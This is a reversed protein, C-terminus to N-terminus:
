GAEDKEPKSMGAPGATECGLIRAGAEAEERGESLDGSHYVQGETLVPERICQSHLSKPDWALFFM